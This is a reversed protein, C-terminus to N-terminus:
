HCKHQQFDCFFDVAISNNISNKERRNWNKGHTKIENIQSRWGSRLTERKLMCIKSYMNNNKEIEISNCITYNIETLTLTRHARERERERESEQHTCTSNEIAMWNILMSKPISYLWLVRHKCQCFAVMKDHLRFSNCSNEDIDNQYHM